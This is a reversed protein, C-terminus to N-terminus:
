NIVLNEIDGTFINKANNFDGNILIQNKIESAPEATQGYIYPEDEDTTHEDAFGNQEDFTSDHTIDSFPLVTIKRKIGSGITSNFVWESNAEGKKVHWAEFTAGGVANNKVNMVIYHWIGLVFSPLCVNDIDQLESKTLTKNNIYFLQGSAINKDTEITELIAKVLQEAKDEGIFRAVLVSMDSLVRNYENKVREDFLNVDNSEFVAAFYTGGNDECRRYGVANKKLTADKNPPSFSPKIIKVLEVLLGPQSLGDTEGIANKRKSTRQKRARLLLTFFTGGCLKPYDNKSM